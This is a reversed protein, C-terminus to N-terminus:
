IYLHSRSLFTLKEINRPIKKKKQEEGNMREYKFSVSERYSSILASIYYYSVAYRVASRLTTPTHVCTTLSTSKARISRAAPKVIIPPKEQIGCLM